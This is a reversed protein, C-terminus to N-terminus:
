LRFAFTVDFFYEGLGTREIRDEKSTGALVNFMMRKYLAWNWEGM